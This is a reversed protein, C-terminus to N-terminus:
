RPRAGGLLLIGIDNRVSETDSQKIRTPAAAPVAKPAPSLLVVLADTFLGFPQLTTSRLAFSLGDPVSDLETVAPLPWTDPDVVPPLPTVTCEPLPVLLLMTVVVSLPLPWVVTVVDSPLQMM